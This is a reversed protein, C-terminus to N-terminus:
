QAKEPKSTYYPSTSPYETGQFIKFVAYVLVMMLLTATLLKLRHHNDDDNFDM